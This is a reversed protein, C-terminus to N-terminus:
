NAGLFFLPLRSIDEKIFGFKSNQQHVKPIRKKGGESLTRRQSLTLLSVLAAWPLDASLSWRDSAAAM